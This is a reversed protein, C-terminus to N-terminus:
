NLLFSRTIFAPFVPTINNRLLCVCTKTFGKTVKLFMFERSSPFFVKDWFRLFLCGVLGMVSGPLALVHVVGHDFGWIENNM